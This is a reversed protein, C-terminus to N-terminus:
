KQQRQAAANFFELLLEAKERSIGNKAMLYIIVMPTLDTSGYLFPENIVGKIRTMKGRAELIPIFTSNMFINRINKPNHVSDPKYEFNRLLNLIPNYDHVIGDVDRPKPTQVAAPPPASVEMYEPKRLDSYGANMVARVGTKQAAYAIAERIEANIDSLMKDSKERGLYQVDLLSNYVKDSAATIDALKSKLPATDAEMKKQIELTKLRCKRSIENKESDSKAAATEQLLKENLASSEFVCVSEAKSIQRVTEDYEAKLRKMESSAADRAAAYEKNRAEILSLLKEYSLDESKFPKLFLGLEHNYYQMLPHLAYIAAVDVTGIFPEAKAPSAPSAPQEGASCILADSPCLIFICLIFVSIFALRDIKM